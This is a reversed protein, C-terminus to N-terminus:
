RQGPCATPPTFGPSPGAIGSSAVAYGSGGLGNTYYIEIGTSVIPTASDPQEFTLTFCFPQWALVAHSRLPQSFTATQGRGRADLLRLAASTIKVDLPTLSSGTVVFTYSRVGDRATTSGISGVALANDFWGSPAVPQPSSCNWAFLLPLVIFRPRRWDSM